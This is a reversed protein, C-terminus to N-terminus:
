LLTVTYAVYGSAPGLVDLVFRLYYPAGQGESPAGPAWNVGDSSGSPYWTGSAGGGWSETVTGM